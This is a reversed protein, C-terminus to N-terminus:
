PSNSRNAFTKHSLTDPCSKLSVSVFSAPLYVLAMLTLTKVTDTDRSAKQTLQLVMENERQSLRTMETMKRGNSQLGELCNFDLIARVQFIDTAAHSPPSARVLGLTGDVRQLVTGIRRIQENATTILSSAVHDVGPEDSVRQFYDQRRCLEQLVDRNMTLFQCFQMSRDQLVQLEQTDDFHIDTHPSEKGANEVVNTV